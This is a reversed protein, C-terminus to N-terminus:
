VHQKGEPRTLLILGESILTAVVATAISATTATLVRIFADDEPVDEGLYNLMARHGIGAAMGNLTLIQSYVPNVATLRAMSAAHEMDLVDPSAPQLGFRVQAEPTRLHEHNIIDWVLQRRLVRSEDAGATM